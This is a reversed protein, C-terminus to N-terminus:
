RRRFEALAIGLVMLMIAALVAFVDLSSGRPVFTLLM